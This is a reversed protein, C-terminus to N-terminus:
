TKICINRATQANMNTLQLLCAYSMKMVSEKMNGLATKGKFASCNNSLEKNCFDKIVDIVATTADEFKTKVGWIPGASYIEQIEIIAGLRCQFEKWKGYFDSMTLAKKKIILVLRGARQESDKSLAETVQVTTYQLKHALEEVNM